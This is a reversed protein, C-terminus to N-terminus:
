FHKPYQASGVVNMDEPEKACLTPTSEGFIDSLTKLVVPVRAGGGVVIQGKIQSSPDSIGAEALMEKM